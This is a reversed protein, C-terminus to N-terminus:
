TTKRAAKATTTSSSGRTPVMKLEAVVSGTAKAIALTRGEASQPAEGGNAGGVIFLLAKHSTVKEPKVVILWHQWVPRDVDKLTRWTQSKLDVVWQKVGDAEAERALTWAYTSDPQHVYRDLATEGAKALSGGGVISGCLILVSLLRSCAFRVASM